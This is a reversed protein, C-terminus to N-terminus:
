QHTSQASAWSTCEPSATVWRMRPVWAHEHFAIGHGAFITTRGYHLTQWPYTRTLRRWLEVGAAKRTGCEM